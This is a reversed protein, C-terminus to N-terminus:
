IAIDKIKYFNNLLKFRWRPVKYYCLFNNIFSVRAVKLHRAYNRIFEEQLNRALKLKYFFIFPGLIHKILQWGLAGIQRHEKSSKSYWFCTHSEIPKYLRIAPCFPGNMFSTVSQPPSPTMSITVLHSLLPLPPLCNHSTVSLHLYLQINGKFLWNLCM